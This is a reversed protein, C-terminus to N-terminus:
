HEAKKEASKGKEEKVPKPKSYRTTKPVRDDWNRSAANLQKLKKYEKFEQPDPWPQDANFAKEYAQADYEERQLRRIEFYEARQKLQVVNRERSYLERIMQGKIPDRAPLAEIKKKLEVIAKRETEEATRANKAELGLDAYIPDITHPDPIKQKCGAISLMTLCFLM